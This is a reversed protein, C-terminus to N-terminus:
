IVHCTLSVLQSYVDHRSSIELYLAFFVSLFKCSYLRYFLSQKSSPKLGVNSNSNAFFLSILQWERVWVRQDEPRALIM